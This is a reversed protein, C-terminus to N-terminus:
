GAPYVFRLGSSNADTCVPDNGASTIEVTVGNSLTLEPCLLEGEGTATVTLGAEALYLELLGAAADSGIVLSEVHCFEGMDSMYMFTSDGLSPLFGITGMEGEFDAVWGKGALYSSTPGLAGMDLLCAEIGELIQDEPREEQALAPAVATALTLAVGGAVSLTRVPFCSLCASLNLTKPM